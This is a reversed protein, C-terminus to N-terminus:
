QVRVERTKVVQRPRERVEQVQRPPPAEMDVNDEGQNRATTKEVYETVDVRRGKPRNDKVNRATKRFQIFMGFVFLVIIGALYGWWASPISYVTEGNVGISAYQELDNANPFDEGFYGVGWAVLGSGFLSTSIILVPKGFKLALVGFFFGLVVCMLTLLDKTHGPYILYGVSSTIIMGAMVGTAAGAIFTSVPYLWIVAAGCLIGGVGFAIWSALVLWSEDSFLREAIMATTVGGVVFGVAFLAVRILRFGFILMVAGIIIATAALVSGELQIGRAKGFLSKVSNSASDVDASVKSIRIAFQVLILALVTSKSTSLGAM